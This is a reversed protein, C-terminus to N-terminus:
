FTISRGFSSKVSSTPTFKGSSSRRTFRRFSSPSKSKYSKVSSKVSTPRRHTSRGSTVTILNGNLFRVYKKKSNLVFNTRQPPGERHTQQLRNLMNNTIKQRRINILTNLLSNYLEFNPESTNDLIVLANKYKKEINSVVNNNNAFVQLLANKYPTLSTDIFQKHKNM